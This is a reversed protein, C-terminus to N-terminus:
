GSILKQEPFIDRMLLTFDIYPYLVLYGTGSDGVVYTFDDPEPNPIGKYGPPLIFSEPMDGPSCQRYMEVASLDLQGQVMYDNLNSDEDSFIVIM